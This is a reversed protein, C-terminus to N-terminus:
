ISTYFPIHTVVICNTSVSVSKVPNSAAAGGRKRGPRGRKKQRYTEYEEEDSVIGQDEVEDEIDSPVDVPYTEEEKTEEKALESVSADNQETVIESEGDAHSSSKDVSINICCPLHDIFFHM